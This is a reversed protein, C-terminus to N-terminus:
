PYFDRHARFRFAWNDQNSVTSITSTAGLAATSLGNFTAASDLKQYLVDVGMYFDKTVNWQTRTGVWYTNWNNDCGPTAVALTGNSATVTALALTSASTPM